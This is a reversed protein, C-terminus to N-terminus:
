KSLFNKVTLNFQNPQDDHAYHGAGEIATFEVNKNRACMKEALEASIYDSHGGKLLLAPCSIAEFCSWLDIGRYAASDLRAQLIGAHDHKWTWINGSQRLMYAVREEIAEPTTGPRVQRLYERAADLNSFSLPATVLERKIREAGRSDVAADPGAEELVVRTVSGPNRAAFVIAVMGGMSHGLLCFQELGLHEVLRSLDDLYTPIYYNNRTDWDTEGRGRQDPAIVRWTPGLSLALRRFTAGYGRLGHLAVLVNPGEGWQQYHLRIGNLHVFRGTRQM